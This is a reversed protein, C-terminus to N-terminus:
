ASLLVADIVHIIGNSAEIDAQTVKADNIRVGHSADVRLNGGQVTVASKAGAVDKALVKGSVVHYTLVSKLKPLDKLLGEVTGAPLKQLGRGDACIRHLAPERCRTWWAPRRSLSLWPRSSNAPLLLKM